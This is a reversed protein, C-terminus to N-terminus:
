IVVEESTISPRMVAQKRRISRRIGDARRYPESKLGSIINEIAGDEADKYHNDKKCKSQLEAMLANQQNKKVAQEKKAKSAAINQQIEIQAQKYAADFRTFFSFFTGPPTMKPNEGYYSVVDNYADMAKKMDGELKKVKDENNLLFDRLITSDSCQAYERKCKKIGNVLMNIDMTLNEASVNAAKDVYQLDGHFKDIEPFKLQVTEVIYHLLTIKRDTSKTDLLTDLSQLKFGYASGRKASNLYNGFALIIELLRKLQTSNKVSFSASLLANLQPKLGQLVDQFNGMFCMIDLKDKVRLVKSLKYILKDEDTLKDLPKKDKEYQKYVKVEQESPTYRRLQEVTEIPILALDMGEIALVIQDTSHEIKRRVISINQLKAGDLLSVGTDKKKTSRKGDLQTKGGKVPQITKFTEEFENFDIDKMVKDDDLESFVTGSIQNPKFAVWNLIPLRYKTNIRKKITVSGHPAAGPMGGPLPPPPPGSGPPPPPPPPGGPPPPPPPPPPPGGPPPPPPPPPPAGGMPPPPPPPPPPAGATSGPLPPASPPASGTQVAAGETGQGLGPPPPPFDGSPGGGGVITGVSGGALAIKLQNELSTTNARSTEVDKKLTEIYQSDALQKTQLQQIHQVYEAQQLQLDAIKALSNDETQRLKEATQFLNDELQTVRELAANKTDSDEMLQGVDFVNDLYAQIQVQLRDSETRKLKELYEDLGLATFEYQLYSRFNMEEVSHVVINIFQMCAVMFDINTDEYKQFYEFMKEFRRREQCSMKFFDFAQLIIEHGGKVLCVAALLELVLAKTRPSKHNLSLAIANICLNHNIILNFGYQFNMIARCCMICVHVDDRTHALHSPSGQGKKVSKGSKSTTGNRTEMTEEVTMAKNLWQLYEVLVDLGGNDENLFERVWQINNTRLSIELDRLNQTSSDQMKKRQRKSSNGPEMIKKIKSIYVSPAAKAHVLEQDCILDWKKEDDYQRLLKAKEPPLDMQNHIGRYTQWAQMQRRRMLYVETPISEIIHVSALKVSDVNNRGRKNRVPMSSYMPNNRKPISHNNFSQHRKNQRRNAFDDGTNNVFDNHIPSPTSDGQGM